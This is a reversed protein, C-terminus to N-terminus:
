PREECDFPREKGPGDIVTVAETVVTEAPIPITAVRTRTECDNEPCYGDTSRTTTLELVNPKPRSVAFTAAGGIYFTLKAVESGERKYAVQKAGCVSQNLPFVGGIQGGLPIRRAVRGIRVVLELQRTATEGEGKSPYVAWTLKASPAADTPWAPVDVLKPEHSGV